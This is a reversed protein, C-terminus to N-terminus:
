FSGHGQMFDQEGGRKGAGGEVGLVERGADGDVRGVICRLGGGHLGELKGAVAFEEVSDDVYRGAGTGMGDDDQEVAEGAVLAVEVERM